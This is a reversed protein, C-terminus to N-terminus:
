VPAFLLNPIQLEFFALLEFALEVVRYPVCDLRCRHKYNKNWTYISTDDNGKTERQLSNLRKYEVCDM